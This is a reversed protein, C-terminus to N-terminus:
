SLVTEYCIVCSRALQFSIRARNPCLTNNYHFFIVLRARKTWKLEWRRLTQLFERSVIINGAQHRLANLLILSQFSYVDINSNSFVVYIFLLYTIRADRNQTSKYLIQLLTHLTYVFLFPVNAHFFKIQCKLNLILAYLQVGILYFIQIM